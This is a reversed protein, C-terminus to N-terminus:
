ITLGSNQEETTHIDKLAQIKSSLEDKKITTYDSILPTSLGIISCMLIGIVFQKPTLHKTDFYLINFVVDFTISFHSVTLIVALICFTTHTNTKHTDNKNSELDKIERHYKDIVKKNLYLDHLTSVLAAFQCIFLITTFAKWDILEVCYVSYLASVSVTSFM